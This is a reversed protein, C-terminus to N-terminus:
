FPLVYLSSMHRKSNTMTRCKLEATSIYQIVFCAAPLIWFEIIRSVNVKVYPLRLLSRQTLPVGVLLSIIPTFFFFVFCIFLCFCFLVFCFVFLWTAPAAPVKLFQRWTHIWWFLLVYYLFPPEVDIHVWVNM